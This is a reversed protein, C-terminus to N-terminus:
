HPCKDEPLRIVRPELSITAMNLMGSPVYGKLVNSPVKALVEDMEGSSTPLVQNNLSKVIDTISGVSTVYQLNKMPEELSDIYRLLVPSTSDDSEVLLIVTETSFTETYHESLIGAPSNVDMYTGNGTEMSVMTMGIMSIVM